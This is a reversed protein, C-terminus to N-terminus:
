EDSSLGTSFKEWPNSKSQKYKKIEAIWEELERIAERHTRCKKVMELAGEMGLLRAKYTVEAIIKKIAKSEESM